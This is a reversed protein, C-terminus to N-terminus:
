NLLTDSRSGSRLRVPVIAMQLLLYFSIFWAILCRSTKMHSSLFVTHTRFWLYTSLSITSSQSLTLKTHVVTTLLRSYCPGSELSDGFCTKPSVPFCKRVLVRLCWGARPCVHAFVNSLAAVESRAETQQGGVRDFGGSHQISLSWCLSGKQFIVRQELNRYEYGYMCMRRINKIYCVSVCM